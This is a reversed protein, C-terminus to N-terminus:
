KKDTKITIIWTGGIKKAKVNKPLLKKDIQWRVGRDTIGSEVAYEKVSLTRIM